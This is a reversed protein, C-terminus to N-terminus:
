MWLEHSLRSLDAALQFIDHLLLLHLNQRDPCVPVHDPSNPVKIYRKSPVSLRGPLADSSPIEMLGSTDFANALIHVNSCRRTAQQMDSILFEHGTAGM